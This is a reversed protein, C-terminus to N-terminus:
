SRPKRTTTKKPAPPTTPTPEESEEPAPVADERTLNADDTQADEAPIWGVSLFVGPNAVDCIRGCSPDYLQTM